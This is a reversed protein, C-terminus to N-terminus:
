LHRLRQVRLRRANPRQHFGGKRGGKRLSGDCRRGRRGSRRRRGGRDFLSPVHDAARSEGATQNRRPGADPASHAGCRHFPSRGLGLQNPLPSPELSLPVTPTQTTSHPPPGYRLRDSYIEIEASMRIEQASSQLNLDDNERREGICARRRPHCRLALRARARSRALLLSRFGGLFGRAIRVAVLNVDVLEGSSGDVGSRELRLLSALLLHFLVAKRGLDLLIDRRRRRGLPQRVGDVDEEDTAALLWVRPQDHDQAPEDLLVLRRQELPALRELFPDALRQTLLVFLLAFVPFSFHPLFADDIAHVHPHTEIEM